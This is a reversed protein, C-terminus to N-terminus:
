KDKYEITCKSCIEDQRTYGTMGCGGVKKRTWGEPLNVDYGQIIVKRHCYDCEFEFTKLERKM